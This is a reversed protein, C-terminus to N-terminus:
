ISDELAIPGPRLTNLFECGDETVLVVDSTGIRSESLQFFSVFHFLVNPQLVYDSSATIIDAETWDPPYGIGVSYGGPLYTAGVGNSRLHDTGVEYAAQRVESGM